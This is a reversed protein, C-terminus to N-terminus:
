PPPEGRLDLLMAHVARLSLDQPYEAKLREAMAVAEDFRGDQALLVAILRGVPPYEGKPMDRLYWLAERPDGLQSYLQAATTRRIRADRDNPEATRRVLRHGDGDTEPLLVVDLAEHALGFEGMLDALVNRPVPWDEFEPRVVYRRGDASTGMLEIAEQTRDARHLLTALPVVCSMELNLLPWLRGTEEPSLQHRRARILAQARRLLDIGRQTADPALTEGNIQYLQGLVILAQIDEHQFALVRPFPPTSRVRDIRRLLALLAEEAARVQRERVLDRAEDLDRRIGNLEIAQEKTLPADSPRGASLTSSPPFLAGDPASCLLAIMVGALLALWGWVLAVLLAVGGVVALLAIT